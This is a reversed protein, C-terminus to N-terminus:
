TKQSVRRRLRFHGGDGSNPYLKGFKKISDILDDDAVIVERGMVSRKLHADANDKYGNHIDSFTLIKLM